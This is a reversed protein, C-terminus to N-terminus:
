VTVDNQSVVSPDIIEETTTDMIATDSVCANVTSKPHKRRLKSVHISVFGATDEERKVQRSNLLALLSSFISRPLLTSLLVFVFTKQGFAFAFISGARLASTLACTNVTYLMLVNLLTDTRRIGTRMQYFARCMATTIVLDATLESGITIYYLWALKTEFYEYPHGLALAFFAVGAALSLMTMTVIVPVTHKFTAPLKWVRYAYVRLHPFVYAVGTDEIISLACGTVSCDSLIAVLWYVMISRSVGSYAIVAPSM